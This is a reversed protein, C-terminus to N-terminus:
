NGGSRNRFLCVVRDFKMDVLEFDRAMLYKIVDTATAEQQLGREPGCDVSIFDINSLFEGCGMLIEPEAGEAELKLLRVRPVSRASLLNQLTTAQINTVSTHKTTEFLSSDATEADHYFTLTTEENWLAMRVTEKSGGFINLDACDAEEIEPEVAILRLNGCNLGLWVSVEGVNAGCDIVWDGPSFSIRDLMYAKALKDLCSSIGDTYRYVRSKRCFYLSINGDNVVIKEKEKDWLLTIPYRWLLRNVMNFYRPFERKERKDLWQRAYYRINKTIFDRM